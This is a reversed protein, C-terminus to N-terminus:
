EKGLGLPIGPKLYDHVSTYFVLDVGEVSFQESNM